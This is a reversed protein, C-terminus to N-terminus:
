KVREEKLLEERMRGGEQFKNKHVDKAKGDEM